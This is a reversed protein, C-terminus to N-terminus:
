YEWIVSEGGPGVVDLVGGEAYIILGSYDEGAVPAIERLYTERLLTPYDVSEVDNEIIYRQGTQAIQKLNNEIAGQQSSVRVSQFAPIAMAAFMGAVIPTSTGLQPSIASENVGRGLLGDETLWAVHASSQMLPAYLMKAVNAGAATSPNMAALQTFIQDALNQAIDAHVPSMYRLLVGAPVEGEFMARFQPDDKLRPGQAWHKLGDLGESSFLVDGGPQQSVLVAPNIPAGGEQPAFHYIEWGDAEEVQSAQNALTPLLNVMAAAGGKLRLVLYARPIAPADPALQWPEAELDYDLAYIVPYQLVKLVDRATLGQENLERDLQLDLLVPGNEGMIQNAIAYVGQLLPEYDLQGEFVIDTGAPLWELSDFARNEAGLIQLFQPVNEGQWHLFSRHRYLGDEIKVVSTGYADMRDAGFTTAIFRFDLPVPINQQMAVSQWLENAVDAGTLVFGEINQFQLAQGELDLEATVRQFLARDSEPTATLSATALGLLILPLHRLM